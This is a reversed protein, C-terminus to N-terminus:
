QIISLKLPMRLEKAIERTSKAQDYLELVREGRKNRDNTNNNNSM